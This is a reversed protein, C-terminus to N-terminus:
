TDNEQELVPRIAAALAYQMDVIASDLKVFAMGRVAQDVEAESVGDPMAAWERQVLQAIGADRQWAKYALWDAVRVREPGTQWRRVVFFGATIVSASAWEPVGVLAGVVVLAAGAVVAVTLVACVVVADIIQSM